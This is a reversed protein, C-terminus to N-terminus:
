FGVGGGSIGGGGVMAPNAPPLAKSLAENRIFDESSFIGPTQHLSVGGNFAPNAPPLAVDLAQSRLTEDATSRLYPRGRWRDRTSLRGNHTLSPLPVVTREAKEITATTSGEQPEEAMAPSFALGLAVLAITALIILRFV